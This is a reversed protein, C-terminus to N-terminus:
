TNPPGAKRAVVPSTPDPGRNTPNDSGPIGGDHVSYLVKGEASAFDPYPAELPVLNSEVNYGGTNGASVLEYARCDLLFAAGTQQRALGNPCNENASLMAPFTTFTRESSITGGSQSVSNTAVVRWYYTTGPTLGELQQSVEVYELGSGIDADPLPVSSCASESCRAAGYELHYSTSANGPNIRAVLVASDAHVHRVSLGNFTPAKPPTTFTQEGGVTTGLESSAVIHYRYTTAPVLGTVAFEVDTLGVNNGVNEGPPVASTNGYSGESEWEFYYHMDEGTGEWSGHLIASTATVATAPESGLGLVAHPTFTRDGSENTGQADEAVLRYHYKQEPILNALSAHVELKTSVPTSSTGVVSGESNECPVSAGYTASTGFEFRCHTVNGGNAPDINGHLLATKQKVDSVSTPSVDPLIVAGLIAVRNNSIEGTYLDHTTANFAIGSASTLNGAGVSKVYDGNDDYQAIETGNAVYVENTEPEIAIGAPGYYINMVGTGEGYQTNLAGNAASYVETAVGNAVFLNGQTDIAMAVPQSLCGFETIKSGSATYVGIVSNDYSAVYVEGNTPNVAVSSPTNLGRIQGNEGFTSLLQGGPTFKDVVGRSFEAAYLDGTSQDVALSQLSSLSQFVPEANTIQSMYHGSADFRDIVNNGSDAVYIDGQNAGGSNDVAVGTPSALPAPAEGAGNFTSLFPHGYAGLASAPGFVFIAVCALSAAVAIRGAPCTWVIQEPGNRDGSRPLDRSSVDHSTMAPVKRVTVDQVRRSM